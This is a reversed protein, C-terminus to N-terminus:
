GGLFIFFDFTLRYIILNEVIIVSGIEMENIVAKLIRLIKIKGFNKDNLSTEIIKGNSLILAWQSCISNLIKSIKVIM